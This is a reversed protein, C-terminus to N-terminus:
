LIDTCKNWKWEWEWESDWEEWGLLEQLRRAFGKKTAGVRARRVGVGVRVDVGVGMGLEM